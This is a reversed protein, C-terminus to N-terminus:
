SVAYSAGNKLVYVVKTVDINYSIPAVGKWTYKKKKFKCVFGDNAQISAVTKWM